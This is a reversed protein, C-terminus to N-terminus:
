MSPKVSYMFISSEVIFGVECNVIECIGTIEAGTPVGVSTIEKITLVNGVNLGCNSPLLIQWQKPRGQLFQFYNSKVFTSYNM